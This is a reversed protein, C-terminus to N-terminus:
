KLIELGKLEPNKILEDQLVVAEGGSKEIKEKAKKSFNWAVIRLKKDLNGQSLVKGAIVVNKGKENIEDLNFEGRKKVPMALLHAFEQKNKKLIILTEVLEPNKKKKIKKEIKSKNTKM